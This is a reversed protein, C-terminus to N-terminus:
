ARRVYAASLDDNGRSVSSHGTMAAFSAAGVSIAIPAGIILLVIAGVFMVLSATLAMDM